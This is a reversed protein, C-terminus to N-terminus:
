GEGPRPRCRTWRRVLHDQEVVGVDGAVDVRERRSAATAASRLRGMERSARLRARAAPGRAASATTPRAGPRGPAPAPRRVPRWGPGRPGPGAGGRRASGARTPWRDAVLGLAVRVVAEGDVPVQELGRGVGGGHGVPHAPDVQQQEAGQEVVDALPVGPVVGLHAHDHRASMAVRIPRGGSSTAVMTVMIRSWRSSGSVAVRRSRSSGAVARRTASSTPSRDVSSRSAAITSASLRAVPGEAHPSSSPRGPPRGPRASWGAGPRRARRGRRRRQDGLLELHHHVRHAGVPHGGQGDLRGLDGHHRGVARAEQGLHGPHQGEVPQVHARRHHGALVAHGDLGEGHLGVPAPPRLRGLERVVQGRDHVAREVDVGPEVGPGVGVAVGAPHRTAWSTEVWTVTSLLAEADAVTTSTRASSM